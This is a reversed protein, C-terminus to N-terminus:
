SRYNANISIYGHTLDCTWVRSSHRGNGINIDIKIEKNKMYKSLERELFKNSILGAESVKINGISISLLKLPIKIGAKGIAM